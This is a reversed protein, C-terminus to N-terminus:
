KKTLNKLAKELKKIYLPKEKIFSPYMFPRAPLNVERIGKGRFKSALSQLENPVETLRGTGFEVYPAYKVSTYIRYAADQIKQITISGRLRGTDAPVLLKANKEIENASDKTEVDAIHEAEKGIDKFKKLLADVGKLEVNVKTM